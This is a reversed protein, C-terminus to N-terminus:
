MKFSEEPDIGDQSSNMGVSALFYCEGQFGGLTSDFHEFFGDVGKIFKLFICCLEILFFLFDCVLGDSDWLRDLFPNVIFEWLLIKFFYRFNLIHVEKSSVGELFWFEGVVIKAFQYIYDRIHTQVIM